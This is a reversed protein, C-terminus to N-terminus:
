IDQTIDFNQLVDAVKKVFMGGLMGDVIRHDYTHSLYMMHRVAIVDEGEIEVVVPKKTAIGLAMIAVQPQLIIPTGLINGFTGINSVTYTGDSIDDSTLQNNRAKQALTNIESALGLINKRDANKIVPVILNGNPLATAIGINIDKKYIIKDEKISVNINPFEKICQAIAEVFVPLYTLNFGYKKKFSEKHKERWKVIKTVDCEVFSSVHASIRKSDVMNKSIIKRIRDMEVIEENLNNSLQTQKIEKNINEDIKIKEKSEIQIIKEEESKNIQKVNRQAIYNLVDEKTIRGNLGTGKITNLEELQINEVRAINLVLPSFQNSNFNVDQQKNETKPTEIQQNINKISIEIHKEAEKNELVEKKEVQIPIEVNTDSTEIIALVEGVAVVSGEEFLIKQLTGSVNSLIETDVKDTAVELVLENELVKDGVTKNWSLITAEIVSEGMKPMLLKYEAM